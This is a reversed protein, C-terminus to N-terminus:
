CCIGPLVTGPATPTAIGSGSSPPGSHFALLRERPKNPNFVLEVPEKAEELLAGRTVLLYAIGDLLEDLIRQEWLPERILDPGASGGLASLTVDPTGQLGAHNHPAEGCHTSLLPLNRARDKIPAASHSRPV